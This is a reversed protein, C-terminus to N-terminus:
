RLAESTWLCGTEKRDQYIWRWFDGGSCCDRHRYCHFAQDSRPHLVDSLHPLGTELISGLGVEATPELQQHSCRRWRFTLTVPHHGLHVRRRSATHHDEPGIFEVSSGDSRELQFIEDETLRGLLFQAECQTRFFRAIVIQRELQGTVILTIM